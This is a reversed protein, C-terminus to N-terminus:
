FIKTSPLRQNSKLMRLEEKLKLNEEELNFVKKKLEINEEKFKLPNLNQNSPIQNQETTM